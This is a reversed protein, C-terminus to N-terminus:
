DRESAPSVAGRRQRLAEFLIVGTAVSVNLSEGGGGMPIRGLFDCRERTLRRLGRGEGGVVIALPGSLDLEYIAQPAGADAGVVWVGLDKLRGLTRVLNTVRVLTLREAAGAAAKRAAPTLDVARDRPFIVATVGAAEATRLCAGLNRPDELHDLALVLPDKAAAVRDILAEEGIPEPARYGAAAGQHKLNPFRRDLEGRSLRRLPIRHAEVLAMLERARRDKRGELLLVESIRGADHELASAVANFGVLWRPESM